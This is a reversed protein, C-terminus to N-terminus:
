GKEPKSEAQIAEREAQAYPDVFRPGPEELQGRITGVPSEWTLLAPKTKTM